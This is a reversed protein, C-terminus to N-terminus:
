IRRHKRACDIYDIASLFEGERRSARAKAAGDDCSREVMFKAGAQAARLIADEVPHKFGDPEDESVIEIIRRFLQHFTPKDQCREWLESVLKMEEAANYVGGSNSGSAWARVLNRLVEAAHHAIFNTNANAALFAEVFAKRTKADEEDM